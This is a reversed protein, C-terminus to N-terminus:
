LYLFFGLYWSILLGWIDFCLVYLKEHFAIFAAYMQTHFSYPIDTIIFNTEKCWLM